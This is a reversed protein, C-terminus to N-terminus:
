LEADLAAILRQVDEPTTYHVFSRRLVGHVPNIGLAELVRYGYFHGGGGGVNHRSIMGAVHAAPRDLAISVTPM